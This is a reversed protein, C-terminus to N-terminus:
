QKKVKLMKGIYFYAEARGFYAEADKDNQKLVKTYLDVAESYYNRYKMLTAFGM